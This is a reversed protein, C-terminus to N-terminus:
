QRAHWMTLVSTLPGPSGGWWGDGSASGKWGAALSVACVVPTVGDGLLVRLIHQLEGLLEQVDQVDNRCDSLAGPLLAPLLERRRQATATCSGATLPQRSGVGPPFVRVAREWSRAAGLADTGPWSRSFKRAAGTDWAAWISAMARGRCSEPSGILHCGPISISWTRPCRGDSLWM